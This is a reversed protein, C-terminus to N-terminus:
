GKGGFLKGIINGVNGLAGKPAQGLMGTIDLSPNGSMGRMMQQLDFDIDKPDNTKRILQNMVNPVLTNAVNQAVQQPINFKTTLSNAVSSVLNNIVPHSGASRGAGSQFMSVVQQINGQGVQGKLNSIIQNTVDKIAANNFQDPIAKNQVITEQANQEVIKLLQDLM